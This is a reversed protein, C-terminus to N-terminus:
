SDYFMFLLVRMFIVDVVVYTARLFIRIKKAAAFFYKCALTSTPVPSCFNEWREGSRLSPAAFLYKRAHRRVEVHFTALPGGGNKKVTMIIIYILM